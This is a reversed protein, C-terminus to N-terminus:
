RGELLMKNDMKNYLLKKLYISKTFYFSIQYFSYIM